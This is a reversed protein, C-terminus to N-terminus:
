TTPIRNHNDINLQSMVSVYIRYISNPPLEPLLEPNMGHIGELIVIQKEKLHAWQGPESKGLQFSFKPLQVREGGM